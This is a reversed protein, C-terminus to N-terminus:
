DILIFKPDLWDFNIDEDFPIGRKTLNTVLALRSLSSWIGDGEEPVGWGEHDSADDWEKDGPGVMTEIGYLSLTTLEPWIKSKSVPDFWTSFSGPVNTCHRLVIETLPYQFTPRLLASLTDSNNLFDFEVIKLYRLRHLTINDFRLCGIAESGLILSTLTHANLMLISEISRAWEITKPFPLGAEYIDDYGIIVLTEIHRGAFAATTWTETLPWHAEFTIHRLHPFAANFVHASASSLADGPYLHINLSHLSPFQTYSLAQAADDWNTGYLQLSTISPPLAQLLTKLTRAEESNLAPRPRSPECNYSKKELQIALNLKKLGVLYAANVCFLDITPGTCKIEVDLERCFSGHTPALELFAVIKPERTQIHKYIIPLLLQRFRRCTSSISSAAVLQLSPFPTDLVLLFTPDAYAGCLNCFFYRNSAEERPSPVPPIKHRM